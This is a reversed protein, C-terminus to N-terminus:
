SGVSGGDLTVADPLPRGAGGRDGSRRFPGPWRGGADTTLFGLDGDCDFRKANEGAEGPGPITNRFGRVRGAFPQGRASIACDKCAIFKSHLICVRTNGTCFLGIASRAVSCGTLTVNGGLAGIACGAASIATGSIDLHGDHFVIIGEGRRANVIGDQLTLRAGRYVAVGDSLECNRLEASANDTVMNGAGSCRRFRTDAMVSHSSDYLTFFGVVDCRALALRAQDRVEFAGGVPVKFKSDRAEIRASGSIAVTKYRSSLTCDTVLARATMCMGMSIFDDPLDCQTVTAQACENLLIGYPENDRIENHTLTVEADGDALIGARLPAEGERRRAGTVTLSAITVDKAGRVAIVSHEADCGRITSKGGDAGRLTLPKDIHVNENWTGAALVIETGPSSLDIAQQISEGPKLFVAM